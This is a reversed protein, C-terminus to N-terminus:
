KSEIGSANVAEVKYQSHQYNTCDALFFCTNANISGYKKWNPPNLNPSEYINYCVIDPSISPTWSIFLHPKYVVQSICNTMVNNTQPPPMQSFCSACILFSAAIALKRGYREKLYCLGCRAQYISIRRGCGCFHKKQRKLEQKEQSLRKLIEEDGQHIVMQRKNDALAVEIQKLNTM